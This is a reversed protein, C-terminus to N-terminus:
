LYIHISVFMSLNFWNCDIVVNFIHLSCIVYKLYNIDEFNIEGPIHACSSVNVIRVNNISQRGTEIMTPFLLHTLLFHGVYNVCLQSEFGDETISHPVFM